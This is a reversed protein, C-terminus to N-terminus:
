DLCAGPAGGGDNKIDPVLGTAIEVGGIAGECHVGIALKRDRTSKLDVTADGPASVDLFVEVLTEDDGTIGGGVRAVDGSVSPHELAVGGGGGGLRKTARVGDRHIGASLDNEGGGGVDVGTLDGHIGVESANGRDTLHIDAIGGCKGGDGDVGGSGM